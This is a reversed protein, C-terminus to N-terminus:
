EVPESTWTLVESDISTIKFAGHIERHYHSMYKKGRVWGEAEFHNFMEYLEMGSALIQRDSLYQKIDLSEIGNPSRPHLEIIADLFHRMLTPM